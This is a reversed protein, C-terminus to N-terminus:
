NKPDEPPSEPTPEPDPSKAAKTKPAPTDLRNEAYGAAILSELTHPSLDHYHYLRDDEAFRQLATSFAKIVVFM